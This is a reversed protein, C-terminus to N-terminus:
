WGQRGSQDVRFPRDLSRVTEGPLAARFFDVEATELLLPFIEPAVRGVVQDRRLATIREMGANWLTYRLDHDFALIGDDSSDVIRAILEADASPYRAGAAGAPAPSARDPVPEPM